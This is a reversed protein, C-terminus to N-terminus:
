IASLAIYPLNSGAIANSHFRSTARTLPVCMGMFRLFRASCPSSTMCEARKRCPATFVYCILSCRAQHQNHESYWILPFRAPHRSVFLMQKVRYAMHWFLFLSLPADPGCKIFAKFYVTLTAVLRLPVRLASIFPKQRRRPGLGTKAVPNCGKILTTFLLTM